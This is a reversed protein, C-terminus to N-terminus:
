KKMIIRCLYTERAMNGKYLVIPDLYETVYSTQINKDFVSKIFKESTTKEIENFVDVWYKEPLNIEDNINFKQEDIRTYDLVNFRALFKNLSYKRGKVEFTFDKILKLIAKKM